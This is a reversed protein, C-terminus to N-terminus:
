LRYDRGWKERRGTNPIDGVYCYTRERSEPDAPDPAKATDDQAYAPLAVTVAGAMGALGFLRRSLSHTM